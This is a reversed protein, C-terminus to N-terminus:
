SNHAVAFADAVVQAAAAHGHEKATVVAAIVEKAVGPFPVAGVPGLAGRRRARRAATIVRHDVVRHAALRRVARREIVLHDRGLQLRALAHDPLGLRHLQGLQQLFDGDGSELWSFLDVSNHAIIQRNELPRVAVIQGDEITILTDDRIWPM